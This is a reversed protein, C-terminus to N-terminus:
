QSILTKNLLVNWLHLTYNKDGPQKNILTDKMLCNNKWQTLKMDHARQRFKEQHLCFAIMILMGQFICTLAYSWACNWKYVLLYKNQLRAKCLTDIFYNVIDDPTFLFEYGKLQMECGRVRPYLFDEVEKATKRVVESFFDDTYYNENSKENWKM